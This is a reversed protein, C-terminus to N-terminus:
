IHFNSVRPPFFDLVRGANGVRAADGLLPHPLLTSVSTDGPATLMARAGTGPVLAGLGGALWHARGLGGAVCLGGAPAPSTNVLPPVARNGGRGVLETEGLSTRFPRGDWTRAPM